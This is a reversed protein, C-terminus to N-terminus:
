SQQLSMQWGPEVFEVIMRGPFMAFAVRKGGFLVAPTPPRFPLVGKSRLRVLEVDLDDCEFCLHAPGEGRRRLLSNVHSDEGAPAILELYGSDSRFMQLMAQQSPDQVLASVPRCGLLEWQPTAAAIDRVLIGVHALRPRPMQLEKLSVM